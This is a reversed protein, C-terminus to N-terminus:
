GEFLPQLRCHMFVELLSLLLLGQDSALYFNERDTYKKIWTGINAENIDVNGLSGLAEINELLSKALNSRSSNPNYHQSLFRANSNVGVKGVKLISQSKNALSFVYVAQKGMPLNGPHHPAPLVEYVVDPLGISYGALNAVSIFDTLLSEVNNIM